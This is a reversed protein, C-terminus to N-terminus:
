YIWTNCFRCIKSYLWIFPILNTITSHRWKCVHCPDGLNCLDADIAANRFHRAPSQKFLILLYNLEPVVFIMALELLCENSTAIMPLQNKLRSRKTCVSRDCWFSLISPGLTFGHLYKKRTYRQTVSEQCIILRCKRELWVPESGALANIPQLPLVFALWKDKRDIWILLVCKLSFSMLKTRECVFLPLIKKVFGFIM